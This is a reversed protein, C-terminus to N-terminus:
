KKSSIREMLNRSKKLVGDGKKTTIYYVVRGDDQDDKFSVILCEKVMRKLMYRVRGHTATIDKDISVLILPVSSGSKCEILIALALASENLKQPIMM